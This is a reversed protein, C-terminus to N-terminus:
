FINDGYKRKIEADTDDFSYAVNGFDDKIIINKSDMNEEIDSYNHNSVFEYMNKEDKYEKENFEVEEDEFPQDKIMINKDVLNYGIFVQVVHM